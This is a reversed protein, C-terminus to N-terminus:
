NSITKHTFGLSFSSISLVLFLGVTGVLYWILRNGTMSIKGGHVALYMLSSQVCLILVSFIGLWVGIRGNTKLQAYALTLWMIVSATVGLASSLQFTKELSNGHIGSWITPLELAPRLALWVMILVSLYLIQKRMNSKASRGLEPASESPTFRAYARPM